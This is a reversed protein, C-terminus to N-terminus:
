IEGHRRRHHSVRSQWRGGAEHLITRDEGLSVDRGSDPAFVAVALAYDEGQFSPEAPQFWCIARPEEHRRCIARRSREVDKFRCFFM